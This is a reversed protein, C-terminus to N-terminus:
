ASAAVAQAGKSVESLRAASGQTKMRQKLNRARGVALHLKRRDDRLERQQRGM